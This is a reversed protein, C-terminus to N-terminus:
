SQSRLNALAPVVRSMEDLFEVGFAVSDAARVRTSLARNSSRERLTAHSRLLRARRSAKAGLVRLTKEVYDADRAALMRGLIEAPLEDVLTCKAGEFRCLGLVEAPSGVSRRSAAQDLWRLVARWRMAEHLWWIDEGDADADDEERERVDVDAKDLDLRLFDNDCLLNMLEIGLSTAVDEAEILRLSQTGSEVSSVRGQTWTTWGRANMRAALAGQGEGLQLRWSRVRRGIQADRDTQQHAQRPAV